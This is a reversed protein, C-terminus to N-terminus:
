VKVKLSDLNMFFSKFIHEKDKHTKLVCVATPRSVFLHMVHTNCMLLLSKPNRRFLRWHIRLYHRTNSGIWSGPSNQKHIEGKGSYEFQLTHECLGGRHLPSIAAVRKSQRDWSHQAAFHKCSSGTIAKQSHAFSQLLVSHAKIARRQSAMESTVVRSVSCDNHYFAQLSCITLSPHYWTSLTSPPTNDIHVPIHQDM